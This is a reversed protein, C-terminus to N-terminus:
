SKLAAGYQKALIDALREGLAVCTANTNCGVHTPMASADVVRLGQVSRVRFDGDLVALPDSSPGVRCTCAPHYVTNAYKQIYDDIERETQVSKGPHVEEGPMRQLMEAGIKRVLQLGRRLQLRDENDSLYNAVIEPKDFPDKSRLRLHGFTKSHTLTPTLTFGEGSPYFGDPEFFITGLHVQLDCPGKGSALRTFLSGECINSQPHPKLGGKLRYSM